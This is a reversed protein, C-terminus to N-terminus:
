RANNCAGGEGAEAGALLGSLEGAALSFRLGGDGYVGSSNTFERM